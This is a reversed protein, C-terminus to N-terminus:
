LALVVLMSATGLTTMQKFFELYRRLVEEQRREERDENVM